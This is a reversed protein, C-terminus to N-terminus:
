KKRRIILGFGGLALGTGTFLAVNGGTYPLEVPVLPTQVPPNTVNVTENTTDDDDSTIDDDDDAIDDDDDDDDGPVNQGAKIIIDVKYTQEQEAKQRVRTTLRVDKTAGSDLNFPLNIAHGDRDTLAALICDSDSGGADTQKISIEYVQVPTSTLPSINKITADIYSQYGPYGNEITVTLTDGSTRVVNTSAWGNDQPDWNPNGPDMRDTKDYITGADSSTLYSPNVTPNGWEILDPSAALANGCIILGFFVMMVMVSLKRM